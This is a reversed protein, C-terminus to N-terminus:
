RKQLHDQVPLCSEVGADREHTSVRRDLVDIGITCM